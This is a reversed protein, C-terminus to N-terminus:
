IFILSERSYLTWYSIDEKPSWFGTNSIHLKGNIYSPDFSPIDIPGSLHDWQSLVRKGSNKDTSLPSAPFIFRQFNHYLTRSYKLTTFHSAFCFSRHTTFYPLCSSFHLPPFQILFCFWHLLLSITPIWACITFPRLFTLRSSFHSLQM